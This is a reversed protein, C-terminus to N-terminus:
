CAPGPSEPVQVVLVATDDRPLGDRFESLHAEITAALHAASSGRAVTAVLRRLGDVGFEEAGRRAETVGDTYFVLSDGPALVVKTDFLPPKDFLGLAMGPKCAEEVSGDGRRLLPPPHGASRVTV